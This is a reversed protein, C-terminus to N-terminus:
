RAGLGNGARHSVVAQMRWGMWHAVFAAPNGTGDLEAWGVGVRGVGGIGGVDGHGWRDALAAVLVLGRGAEAWPDVEDIGPGELVADGFPSGIVELHAFGECWGIVLGFWSGRGHRVINGALESVILEADDCRPTGELVKRVRARAQPVSAPVRDYESVDRSFTTDWGM